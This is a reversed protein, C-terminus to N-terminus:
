GDMLRYFTELRCHVVFNWTRRHKGTHGTVGRQSNQKNLKYIKQEANKGEYITEKCTQKSNWKQRRVSLVARREFFFFISLFCDSKRRHVLRVPSFYDVFHHSCSQSITLVHNLCSSFMLPVHQNTITATTRTSLDNDHTHHPPPAVPQLLYVMNWLEGFLNVCICLYLITICGTYRCVWWCILCQSLCTCSTKRDM